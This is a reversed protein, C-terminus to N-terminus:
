KKQPRKSRERQPPESRKAPVSATSSQRPVFESGEPRIRRRSQPQPHEREYVQKVRREVTEPSSAKVVVKKGRAKKGRAEKGRALFDPTETVVNEAKQEESLLYEALHRRDPDGLALRIWQKVGINWAASGDRHFVTESCTRESCIKLRHCSTTDVTEHHKVGKEAAREASVPPPM